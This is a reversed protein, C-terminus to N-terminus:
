RLKSRIIDGPIFIAKLIASMQRNTLKPASRVLAFAAKQIFSANSLLKAIDDLGENRQAQYINQAVACRWRSDWREILIEPFVSSYRSNMLSRAYSFIETSKQLSAGVLISQNDDSVRISGRSHPIFCCGDRLSMMMCLFGDAFPGLKEDFGGESELVERRYVATNCRFWGDHKLLIDMARTPSIFGAETRVPPSPFEGLDDGRLNMTRTLSTCFGAEPFKELLHLSEEFLGPLVRDDMAAFYIYKGTALERAKRVSFNTGRNRPNELLRIRPEASAYKKLKKLSEDTSGDDIIIIESAPVSQSLLADLAGEIFDAHNYNPLIVSLAPGAGVRSSNSREHEQTADSM